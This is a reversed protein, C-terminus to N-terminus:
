GSNLTLEYLAGGSEQVDDDPSVILSHTKGEFALAARTGSVPPEGVDSRLVAVRASVSARYRGPSEEAGHAIGDPVLCTVPESGDFTVSGSSIAAASKFAAEIDATLSM